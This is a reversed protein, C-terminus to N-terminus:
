RCLFHSTHPFFFSHEFYVRVQALHMTFPIARIRDINYSVGDRAIPRSAFHSKPLHRLIGYRNINLVRIDILNVEPSNQLLHRGYGRKRAEGIQDM